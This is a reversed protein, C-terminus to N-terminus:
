ASSPMRSGRQDRPSPSTYLLCGLFPAAAEATDDEGLRFLKNRMLDGFDNHACLVCVVLDPDIREHERQLLLLAQDPGYGSRGANVTEVSDASDLREGLETGLSHAFTSELPVNEAMVLSDGIVLVRKRRKPSELKAGRFGDSSIRIPVRVADGVGVYREPMVQIRATGPIADYLLESDPGYVQGDVPFYRGVAGELLVLTAIAAGLCVVWKKMAAGRSGQPPAQQNLIRM